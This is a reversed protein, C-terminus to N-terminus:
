SNVLCLAGISYWSQCRMSIWFQVDFLVCVSHFSNQWDNKNPGKRSDCCVIACFIKSAVQQTTNHTTVNSVTRYYSIFHVHFWQWYLMVSMRLTTPELGVNTSLNIYHGTSAPWEFKLPLTCILNLHSTTLTQQWWINSIGLLDYAPVTFVM